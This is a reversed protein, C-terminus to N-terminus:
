LRAIYRNCGDCGLFYIGRYSAGLGDEAAEEFKDLLYVPYGDGRRLKGPNETLRDM